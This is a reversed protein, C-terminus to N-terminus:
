WQIRLKEANESTIVEVEKNQQPTSPAQYDKWVMNHIFNKFHTIYKEDTRNKECHAMYNKVGSAFQELDSEIKTSTKLKNCFKKFHDDLDGKKGLYLGHLTEFQTRYLKLSQETESREQKKKGIRASSVGCGDQKGEYMRATISDSIPNIETDSQAISETQNQLFDLDIEKKIDIRNIIHTQNSGSYHTRISGSTPESLGVITPESLGVVNAELGFKKASEYLIKIAKQRDNEDGYVELWKISNIPYKYFFHGSTNFGFKGKQYNVQDVKVCYGKKELLDICEYYTKKGIKFRTMLETRGVARHTHALAYALIGICNSNIDIDDLIDRTIMAYIEQKNAVGRAAETTTKM